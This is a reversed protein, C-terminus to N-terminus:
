AVARSSILYFACAPLVTYCSLCHLLKPATAKSGGHRNPLIYLTTPLRSAPRTLRQSLRRSHPTHSAATDLSKYRTSHGNKRGKFLPLLFQFPFPLLLGVCVVNGSDVRISAVISVMGNYVCISTAISIQVRPRRYRYMSATDRRSVLPTSCTAATPFLRFPIFSSKLTAPNSLNSKLM